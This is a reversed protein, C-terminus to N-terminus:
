DKPQLAAEIVRKVWRLEADPLAALLVTLERFAGKNIPGAQSSTPLFLEGPDVRLAKALKEINPFRAGSAGTEIKAIMDVSMDAKEALQAQTLRARKRNARVLDGFRRELESM